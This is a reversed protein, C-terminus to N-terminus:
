GKWFADALSQINILKAQGSGRNSTVSHKSHMVFLYLINITNKQHKESKNLIQIGVLLYGM